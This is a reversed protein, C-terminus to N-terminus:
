LGLAAIAEPPNTAMQEKTRLMFSIRDHEGKCDVALVEQQLRNPESPYKAQVYLVYQAVWEKVNFKFDCGPKSCFSFLMQLYRICDRAHLVKGKKSATDPLRPLANEANRKVVLASTEYAAKARAVDVARADAAKRASELLSASPLATCPRVGVLAEVLKDPDEDVDIIVNRVAAGLEHQELSFTPVPKMRKASRARRAPLITMLVLARDRVGDIAEAVLPRSCSPDDLVKLVASPQRCSAFDEAEKVAALVESANCDVGAWACAGQWADQTGAWKGDGLSRGWTFAKRIGRASNAFYRHNCTDVKVCSVDGIPIRVPLSCPATM